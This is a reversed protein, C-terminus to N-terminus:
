DEKKPMNDRIKGTLYEPRLNPIEEESYKSRVYTTYVTRFFIMMGIAPNPVQLAGLRMPFVNPAGQNQWEMLHEIWGDFQIRRLLLNTKALSSIITALDSCNRTGPLFQPLTPSFWDGGLFWEVTALTTRNIDGIVLVGEQVPLINIYRKSMEVPDKCRSFNFAIGIGDYDSTVEEPIEEYYLPEYSSIKSQIEELSISLVKLKIVKAAYEDPLKYDVPFGVLLLKSASQQMLITVIDDYVWKEIDEISPIYFKRMPAKAISM